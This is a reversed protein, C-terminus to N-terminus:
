AKLVGNTIRNLLAKSQKAVATEFNAAPFRKEVEKNSVEPTKLVFTETPPPINSRCWVVESLCLTQM